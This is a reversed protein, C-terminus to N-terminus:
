QLSATRRLPNVGQIRAAAPAPFEGAQAPFILLVEGLRRVALFAEVFAFGDRGSDERIAARQAKDPSCKRAIQRGLLAGSLRLGRRTVHRLFTTAADDVSFERCLFGRDRWVRGPNKM